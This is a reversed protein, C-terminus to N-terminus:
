MQDSAKYTRFIKAEQKLYEKFDEEMYKNTIEQGASEM